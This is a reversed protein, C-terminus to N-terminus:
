PAFIRNFDAVVNRGMKEMQDLDDFSAQKVTVQSEDSASVSSLYEFEIVDGNIKMCGGISLHNLFQDTRCSEIGVARLAGQSM